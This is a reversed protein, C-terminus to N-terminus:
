ELIRGQKLNNIYSEAEEGYNQEPLKFPEEEYKELRLQDYDRQKAKVEWGFKLNPTGQVIFYSGYRELIWCDGEGYKQLSVQYQDTTITRAFIPDFSVYCYGDEGIIGEGIDGFMPTPTEYCYLLRNFYQETNVVRSKSGTVVASGNITFNTGNNLNIYGLGLKMHGQQQSNINLFWEIYDPYITTINQQVQNAGNLKKNVTTIFDTGLKTYYENPQELLIGDIGIQTYGNENNNQNSHEIKIKNSSIKTKSLSNFGSIQNNYSNLEIWGENSISLKAVNNDTLFGTLFNNISVEQGSSDQATLITLGTAVINGRLTLNGTDPDAYFTDKGENNRLTLGNWSIEVRKVTRTLPESYNSNNKNFIRAGKEAILFL